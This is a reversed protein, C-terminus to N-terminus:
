DQSKCYGPHNVSIDEVKSQLVIKGEKHQYLIDGNESPQQSVCYLGLLVRLMDISYYNMATIYERLKLEYNKLAFQLLRRAIAEFVKFEKNLIDFTQVVTSCFSEKVEQTNLCEPSVGLCSVFKNIEFDMVELVRRRLVDETPYPIMIKTIPLDCESTVVFVLSFKIKDQVQKKFM